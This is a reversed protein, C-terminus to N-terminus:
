GRVSQQAAKEAKVRKRRQSKTETVAAAIEADSPVGGADASAAAAEGDTPGGQADRVDAVDEEAPEGEAESDGGEPVSDDDEAGGEDAGADEEEGEEEDGGDEEQEQAGGVRINMDVPVEPEEEGDDEGDGEEGEEGEGDEAAELQEQPKVGSIQSIIAQAVAACKDPSVTAGLGKFVQQVYLGFGNVDGARALESLRKVPAVFAPMEGLTRMWEHVALLVAGPEQAALVAKTAEIVQPPFQPQAPAAPSQVGRAASLIREAADAIPTPNEILKLFMGGLASGFTPKPSSVEGGVTQFLEKVAKFETLMEVITKPKSAAAERRMAKLEEELPSVDVNINQPQFVAKMEAMLKMMETPGLQQSAAPPGSRRSAMDDAFKMVEMINLQPVPALAVPEPAPARQSDRSELREALNQVVGMLQRMGQRMEDMESMRPEPAAHQQAQPLKRDLQESFEDRARREVALLDALEERTNAMTPAVVGLVQQPAAAVAPGSPICITFRTKDGEVGSRTLASVLLTVDGTIGQGRLLPAVERVLFPEIAGALKVRDHPYDNLYVPEEGAERERRVRMKFQEAPMMATVPNANVATVPRQVMQPQPRPQPVPVTTPMAPAFQVMPVPNEERAADGLQTVDQLTANSMTLEKPPHIKPPPTPVNLNRMPACPINNQFLWKQFMSVATARIRLQVAQKAVHAQTALWKTEIFDPPLERLTLGSETVATILGDLARRYGLLTAPSRMKGGERKVETAAFTLYRAVLSAIPEADPTM